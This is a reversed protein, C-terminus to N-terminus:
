SSGIVVGVVGRSRVVRDVVFFCIYFINGGVLIDGMMLFIFRFCFFVRGRYWGRVM